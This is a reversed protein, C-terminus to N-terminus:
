TPLTEVVDAINALDNTLGKENLRAPLTAFSDCVRQNNRRAPFFTVDFKAHTAVVATGFGKGGEPFVYVLYGQMGYPAATGIYIGDRGRPDLKSAKRAAFGKLVTAKCGFPLFYKFPLSRDPHLISAPTRGNLAAHPLFNMRQANLSSCFRRFSPGLGSMDLDHRVMNVLRLGGDHEALGNQHQSEPVSQLHQINVDTFFEELNHSASEGAGDTYLIRIRQPRNRSLLHENVAKADIGDLNESTISYYISGVPYDLTNADVIFQQVIAPLESKKRLVYHWCARTGRDIFFADYRPDDPYTFLDLHVEELPRVSRSSPPPANTKRMHSRTCCHCPPLLKTISPHM